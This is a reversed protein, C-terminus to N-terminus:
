EVGGVSSPPVDADVSEPAAVVQAPTTLMRRRDEDASVALQALGVLSRYLTRLQQTAGQADAVAAAIASDAQGSGAVRLRALEATAQDLSLRARRLEGLMEADALSLSPAQYPPLETGLAATRAFAGVTMGRKRARSLLEEAEPRSCKFAVNLHRTGPRDRYRAAIAQNLMGRMVM